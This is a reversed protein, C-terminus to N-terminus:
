WPVEDEETTAPCEWYLRHGHLKKSTNSMHTILMNRNPIVSSNAGRNCLVLEESESPEGVLSPFNKDEHVCLTTHTAHSMLCPDVSQRFEARGPQKYVNGQPLPM